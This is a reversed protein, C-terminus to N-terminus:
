GDVGPWIRQVVLYLIMLVGFGIYFGILVGAGLTIAPLINGRLLFSVILAIFGALGLIGAIYLMCGPLQGTQRANNGSRSLWYEFIAGVVAIGLGVALGTLFLSTDTQM